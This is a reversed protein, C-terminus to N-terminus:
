PRAPRRAEHRALFEGLDEPDAVLREVAGPRDLTDDPRFTMDILGRRARGLGTLILGHHVARYVFWYGVLNPGPLPALVVTLPAVLV